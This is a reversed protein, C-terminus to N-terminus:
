VTYRPKITADGETLYKVAGTADTVMIDYYAVQAAILAMDAATVTMVITSVVPTSATAPTVTIQIRGNATSAELLVTSGPTARLQVKASGGTLDKGIWEWTHTFTEGVRPKLNITATM